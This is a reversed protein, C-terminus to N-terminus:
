VETTNGQNVPSKTINPVSKLLEFNLKLNTPDSVNLMLVDNLYSNM